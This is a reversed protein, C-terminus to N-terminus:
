PLVIARCRAKRWRRREVGPRAHVDPRFPTGQRHIRAAKMPNVRVGAARARFLRRRQQGARDRM